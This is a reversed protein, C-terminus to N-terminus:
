VFRLRYTFSSARTNSCTIVEDGVSQIHYSFRFEAPWARGHRGSMILRPREDSAFVSDNQPIEIALDPATADWEPGASGVFACACLNILNGTIVKNWTSARPLNLM